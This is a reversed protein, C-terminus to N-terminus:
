RRAALVGTPAPAAANVPGITMVWAAIEARRNVGLKALIHEVHAGVTRPSLHLQTAVEVNTLGESVLRAIEFERASLPRWPEAEAGRSRALRALEQAREQIPPSDLRDAQTSVADLIPLAESARNARILCSALDLRAWTAEWTRSRADWGEIAAELSARALVTSGAVLRILGDGNDFAPRGLAEWGSLLSRTETLWREAADPRRAALYARVGTVIFPVLLPREETEVVLRLAEECRAIAEAPDGAIRATEALGWMAPLTLEVEGSDAGIALSAQFLTRAREVQGRGFAVFGLADRSGLTGRRSGREVIEIEAAVIADDWRGQAWAVHASTAALVHRCYSQEIADAYRLGEGLGIEATAYDMVRIAIAALWRYATVGTAELRSERADRAIRLMTATGTDTRGALVDVGAAIYDIDRTDSSGAARWLSRAEDLLARAEGLRGRDLSVLAQFVRLDSLTATREPTDPLERLESEVQELLQLREPAPRVDRRAVGAENLLAAVAEAPRGAELYWRRALRATEVMVAVDDVAAAAEFYGDYLEACELAPLEDPVNAVARAYLEFSERRSSIAGAARAGARAARFAQARLGAREFHVSAHVESAGVLQAGFEGARAHLRRLDAAPVSDYLADRLLQHRFDYYGRDVVEFPYLFSSAVLEALPAELDGPARDLVGALVEPVFCRGIVAGARAVERAEPSLRAARALIADEITDPVVAERIARGDQRADEDLAGLLEEIYLPIGDTREYVAKVVERPAPLGTGLILTAVTATQEYTLRSLRAEEALRQSLLRARWERHYSDVPLEDARYAGVLLLPVDRGLRALEGIVELSIEGAWQLDDFALLTPARVAAVIREALGRVLVRRAGLHDSSEAGPTELLDDGLSALEPVQRMTRALDLISALPVQRDQPALDGKSVLYGASSAKRLIAGLLRSKGVGSEGAILLLQGRGAAAEALRRDALELLDDRGVLIPSLLPRVQSM